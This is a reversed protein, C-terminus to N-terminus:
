EGSGTLLSAVDQPAAPQLDVGFVNKAYSVLDEVTMNVPGNSTAMMYSYSIHVMASVVSETNIEKKANEIAELVPKAEDETMRLHINTLRVDGEIVAGSSLRRRKVLDQLQAASHTEAVGLWEEANERSLVSAIERMRTWGIVTVRDWGIGSKEVAEAINIMYRAKRYGLGLSEECFEKMGPFGLERAYDHDWVEFLIRSMEAFSSDIKSVLERLKDRCELARSHIVTSDHLEEIAQDLSAPVAAESEAQEAVQETVQEAAPFLAEQAPESANAMPEETNATTKTPKPATKKASPRAVAKGDVRVGKGTDTKGKGATAEKKKTAKTRTDILEM